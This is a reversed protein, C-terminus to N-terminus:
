AASRTLVTSAWSLGVGFGSILLRQDSSPVNQQLIVPISSSVTNGYDAAYFMCKEPAGLAEGISDIVVRSGQHLVIRDIADLTTGNLQLARLISHPVRDKCFALVARGDMYLKGNRHRSVELVDGRSGSTGMDFRGIHWVPDGTLLTVAAADGFLLATRRDNEDIIKSYPDATCLLGCRLGQAEMFAKAVALGYVFGSCGLGIDFAACNESLRLRGHIISSTQPLGYGDPNQTVVILCDVDDPRVAGGPVARL